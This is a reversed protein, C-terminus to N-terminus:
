PGRASSHARGHACTALANGDAAITSRRKLAGFRKEGSARAGIAARRTLAASKADGAEEYRRAEIEIQLELDDLWRQFAALREDPNPHFNSMLSNVNSEWNPDGDRAAIVAWIMTALVRTHGDERRLADALPRRFLPALRRVAAVGPHEDKDDKITKM